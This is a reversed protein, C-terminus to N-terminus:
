IALTRLRDLERFLGNGMLVSINNQMLAEPYKNEVIPDLRVGIDALIDAALMELRHELFGSSMLWDINPSELLGKTDLFRLVGECDTIEIVPTKGNSVKLLEDRKGVVTGDIITAGGFLTTSFTKPHRFRVFNISVP